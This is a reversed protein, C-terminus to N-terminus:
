LSLSLTQPHSKFLSLSPPIHQSPYAFERSFLVSLPTRYIITNLIKFPGPSLKKNSNEDGEKDQNLLNRNFSSRQKSVWVIYSYITM